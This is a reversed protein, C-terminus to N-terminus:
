SYFLINKTKGAFRRYVENAPKLLQSLIPFTQAFLDNLTIIYTKANRLPKYYKASFGHFINHNETM